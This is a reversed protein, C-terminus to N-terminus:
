LEKPQVMKCVIGEPGDRFVMSGVPDERDMDMPFHYAFKFDKVGGPLFETLVVIHTPNNIKMISPALVIPMERLKEAGFEGLTSGHVINPGHWIKASIVHINNRDELVIVRINNRYLKSLLTLIYKERESVKYVVLRMSSKIDGEEDKKPKIRYEEEPRSLSCVLGSFGEHFVLSERRDYVYIDEPFHYAFNFEDIEPPLFETLVVVHTPNNVKTATTTLIFQMKSLEDQGFDCLVCWNTRARQKLIEENLKDIRSIDEIIIFRINSDALKNIVFLIQQERESAKYVVIGM